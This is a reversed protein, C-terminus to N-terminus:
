ASLRVSKVPYLHSSYSFVGLLDLLSVGAVFVKVKEVSINEVVIFSQSALSRKWSLFASWM